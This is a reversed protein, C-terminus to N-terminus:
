NSPNGPKNAYGNLFLPEQMSLTRVGFDSWFHRQDLLHEDITRTARDPPVIDTLLPLFCTWSRIKLPLTWTVEQTVREPTRSQVDQDYYLGDIPDWMRANMEHALADHRARYDAADDALGLQDAIVAMAALERLFFVNHLLPATSLAPRGYVTPINDTGCGRHSMLTLFGRPDLHRERLHGQYRNLTQYADRAWPQEGFRRGQQRLAILLGQTLLPKAPNSTGAKRNDAPNISLNYPIYGGEQQFSLFNRMAGEFHRAYEGEGFAVGGFFADWDWSTKSYVSGPVMYLLPFTENAERLMFHMRGKAFDAILSCDQNFRDTM